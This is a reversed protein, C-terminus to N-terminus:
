LPGATQAPFVQQARPRRQPAHAFTVGVPLLAIAMAAALTRLRTRRIPLRLM